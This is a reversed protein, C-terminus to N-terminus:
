NLVELPTVYDRLMQKREGDGRGENTFLLLWHHCIWDGGRLGNAKVTLQTWYGVPAFGQELGRWSDKASIPLLWGAMPRPPLSISSHLFFLSLFKPCRSIFHLLLFLHLSQQHVNHSLFTLKRVCYFYIQSSFINQNSFFLCTVANTHQLSLFVVTCVTFYGVATHPGAPQLVTHNMISRATTRYHSGTCTDAGFGRDEGSEAAGWWGEERGRGLNERQM